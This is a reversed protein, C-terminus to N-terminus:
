KRILKLQVNKRGGVIELIPLGRMDTMSIMSRKEPFLKALGFDSIELVELLGRLLRTCSKGGSLSNSLVRDYKFRNFPLDQGLAHMKMLLIKGNGKLESLIKVALPKWLSLKSSYPALFEQNKLFIEVNVNREANKRWGYKKLCLNYHNTDNWSRCQSRLSSDCRIM